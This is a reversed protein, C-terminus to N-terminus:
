KDQLDDNGFAGQPIQENKKYVTKKREKKMQKIAKKNEIQEQYIPYFSKVKPSFKKILSGTAKCTLAPCVRMGFDMLRAVADTVVRVKRKRIAKVIRKGATKATIGISEVLSDAKPGSEGERAKYIDTKVPGPMVCSVGIGFGKLEQALCETLAWVGGKTASYISEGGVPLIASASAVNCIYGYKSKKITPLMAKCAYVVSMLNTDVVKKIQDDSLDNYQSFPQIMGANNILIDTMFGMEELEVAFDKWAQLDSINFRRYSFKDGLEVKLEDLKAKNRAVGMVNCGYKKVLLLLVEKGMGTSCGTLVVNRGYLWKKTMYCGM